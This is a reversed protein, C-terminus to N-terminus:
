LDDLKFMKFCCSTLEYTLGIVYLTAHSWDSVWLGVEFYQLFSNSGTFRVKLQQVSSIGPLITLWPMDCLQICRNFPKDPALLLVTWSPCGYCDCCADSIGSGGADSGGRAPSGSPRCSSLATHLTLLQKASQAADAAEVGAGGGSWPSNIPGSPLLKEALNSGHAM